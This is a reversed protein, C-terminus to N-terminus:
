RHLSAVAGFKLWPNQRRSAPYHRKDPEQLDGLVGIRLFGKRRAECPPLWPRRSPKRCSIVSRTRSFNRYKAIFGKITSEHHKVWEAAHQFDMITEESLFFGTV